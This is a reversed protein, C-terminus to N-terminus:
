MQELKSTYNAQLYEVLRFSLIAALFVLAFQTMRIDDTRVFMSNGILLLGPSVAQALDQADRKDNYNQHYEEAKFFVPTPLLVVPLKSDRYGKSRKVREIALRESANDVWICTRYQGLPTYQVNTICFTFYIELLQEYTIVEDDYLVRVAESHGDKNCVSNYTPNPNYGGCYGAISQRVGKIGSYLKQPAWFCGMGFTAKQLKSDTGVLLLVLVATLLPIM